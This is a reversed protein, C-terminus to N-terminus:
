ACVTGLAETTLNKSADSERFLDLREPTWRRLPSGWWLAPAQGYLILLVARLGFLVEAAFCIEARKWPLWV